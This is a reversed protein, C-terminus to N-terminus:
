SPPVEGLTRDFALHRAMVDPAAQLGEPTGAFVVQGKSLVHVADAVRLALPLNQEVLLVSLGSRKLELLVRAVEDVLLPALGESPEDMLLCRPNTMLARGIALMQQEGGSLQNGKHRRRDALRTFVQYVTAATWRGAGRAAVMLNEEVSLSPFIRRGQPVLGLGMRAIRHPPLGAIERGALRIAGRHPPTLGAISRLLTTKGMGNRGVVAAIAGEGLSLSVGHLVHSPGYFTHIQSVELM